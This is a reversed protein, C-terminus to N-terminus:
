EASFSANNGTEPDDSQPEQESVAADQQKAELRAKRSRFDDFLSKNDFFRGKSWALLAPLFIRCLDGRDLGPIGRERDEPDDQHGGGTNRTNNHCLYAFM